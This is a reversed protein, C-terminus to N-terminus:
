IKSSEPAPQMSHKQLTKQLADGLKSGLYNDVVMPVQSKLTALAKTSLDIKKLESMDKEMKVVRLLPITSVSPPPLLTTSPAVSPTELIPIPVVPESIVLVHITLMYPSQIHPVESQIKVDLLSNIEVDTTDKGSEEVEPNRMEEDEDDNVQEDIHIFKDDTEEDDTMEQDEESYESEQESGWELIIYAESTVKKKDPVGLKTGTGDSSTASIVTSENPVGTIR